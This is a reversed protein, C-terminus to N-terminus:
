GYGWGYWDYVNINKGVLTLVVVSDRKVNIITEDGIESVYVTELTEGPLGIKFEHKPQGEELYAFNYEM